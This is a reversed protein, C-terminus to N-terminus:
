KRLDKYRKIDSDTPQDYNKNIIVNHNKFVGNTLFYSWVKYRKANDYVNSHVLVFLRNVGVFNLELFNKYKNTRSKNECSTEYENLYM